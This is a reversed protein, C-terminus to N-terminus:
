KQALVVESVINEVGNSLIDTKEQKFDEDLKKM